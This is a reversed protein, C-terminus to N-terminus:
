QPKKSFAFKGWQFKGWVREDCRHISSPSQEGAGLPNLGSGGSNFYVNAEKALTRVKKRAIGETSKADNIVGRKKGRTTERNKDADIKEEFFKRKGEPAGLNDKRPDPPGFATDAM